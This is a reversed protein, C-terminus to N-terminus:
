KNVHGSLHFCAVDSFWINNVFPPKQEIQDSVLYCFTIRTQQRSGHHKTKITDQLPVEKFQEAFHQASNSFEKSQTRGFTWPYVDKSKWYQQDLQILTLRQDGLNRDVVSLYM